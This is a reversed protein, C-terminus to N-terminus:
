EAKRNLEEEYLKELRKQEWNPGFFPNMGFTGFGQFAVGLGWGVLPYIFWLHEPSKWLNIAILFAMVFVYTALHSYFAKVKKLRKQARKMADKEIM